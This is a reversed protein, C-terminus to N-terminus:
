QGADGRARQRELELIEAIVNEGVIWGHARWIWRAIANCSGALGPRTQRARELILERCDPDVPIM